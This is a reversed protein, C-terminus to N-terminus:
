LSLLDDETIKCVGGDKKVEFISYYNPSLYRILDYKSNYNSVWFNKIEIPKDTKKSFCKVKDNYLNNDNYISNLALFVGIFLMNVNTEGFLSVVFLVCFIISLLLSVVRCAKLVKLRDFRESIIALVIRGGDLPYFPLINFVFVVINCIVFDYTFFYSSPFLWWLAITIVILVINVLPGALSILVDDKKKFSNSGFLGGGYVSFVVSDFEYGKMKAVCYHGYEHLVIAVVYYFIKNFWGFYICLFVYMIFLPKIKIKLRAM